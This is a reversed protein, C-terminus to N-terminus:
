KHTALSKQLPDVIARRPDAHDAHTVDAQRQGDLEPPGAVPHQADVGLHLLDVLEVCPLAVDGVHGGPHQGREDPFAPQAGRSLVGGQALHVGDQDAHRRRQALGFVRIHGEDVRGGLRQSGEHVAVHDDHQLAGGVGAGGFLHDDGLERFRGAELDTLVHEDGKRRLPDVGAVLHVLRAVRGLYDAAHGRGAGRDHGREVGLGDVPNHRDGGGARRLHDLQQLVGEARHVDPQDVLHRDHAVLEADVDPLHDLRGGGLREAEHGKVGAGAQAPM